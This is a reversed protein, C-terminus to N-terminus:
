WGYYKNLAAIILQPAAELSVKWAGSAAKSVMNGLWGKIKDGFEGKKSPSENELASSLKEVDEESVELSRLYDLLSNKDGENVQETSQIVNEGSAVYNNDGYVNVKFLNRIQKKTEKKRSRDNIDIDSNELEIIFDLLKNKINDIIGAIIHKTIPQYADVLVMNGSMKVSDRSLIIAEQSWKKQFSESDSNLMAELQGIGSHIKLEEAFSKVFEPLNSTPLTVNRAVSQLPGSFTGINQAPFIRYSPM